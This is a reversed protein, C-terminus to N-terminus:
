SKYGCSVLLVCCVMSEQLWMVGVVCLMGNAKTTVHCWCCLMGNANTTM